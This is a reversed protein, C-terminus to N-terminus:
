TLRGNTMDRLYRGRESGSTSGDTESIYSDNRGLYTSYDFPSDYQGQGDSESLDSDRERSSSLHMSCRVMNQPRLQDCNVVLGSPSQPPSISCDSESRDATGTSEDDLLSKKQTVIMGRAYKPYTFYFTLCGIFFLGAAQLYLPFEYVTDYVIDAELQKISTIDVESTLNAIPLMGAQRYALKIEQPTAASSQAKIAFKM